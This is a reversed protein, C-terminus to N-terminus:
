APLPNLLLLGLTLPLHIISARLLKKATAESVDRCFRISAALYYAGLILAGVFYIPGALGIASPLLAVPLLTLAHAVAQRGTMDGNPDVLPLMKFGGRAYDDRCLWAIALFHPFQWLFMVLFLTWAEISIQGTAAVWGIVPPLAGPIAGIATNLTTYAKLPTYVAVYLGFTAAALGAALPYPGLLLMGLGIALMVSAFAAAEWPEVRGSPLPRRCTRKMLADRDRELIQNWVSAGGAVLWTGTIALLMQVPNAAGRAGLLYGIAVTILVMMAIRPKTLEVLAKWKARAPSMPKAGAPPTELRTTM